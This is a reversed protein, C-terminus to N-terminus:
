KIEADDFYYNGALAASRRLTMRLHTAGAPATINGSQLQAYASGTATVNIASGVPTAGQYWQLRMQGRSLGDTSWTSAWVSAQYIQGPTVGVQQYVEAYGGFSRLKLHYAGSHGGSDQQANEAPYNTWSSTTEFGPNSLLSTSAIAADDFYYNGALAASRRLTMRLHTAGAPATINGSQLQAYASGTATVNVTSGVPTAGQYWQLRMQGRSLGDMSWTSAWVSAQYIQGPTVGVQQYVEAYGGFSRLKLHYAGSHGGPDQQANEAPYNTWSSTTEFGPNSLVNQGSGPPSTAAFEDAGIDPNDGREDQFFDRPIATLEQAADIVPSSATEIRLWEASPVPGTGLVLDPDLLVDTGSNYFGSPVTGSWWNNNSFTFGATTGSAATGAVQYVINNRFTNGSRTGNSLLEVGEYASGTAGTRTSVFTNHAITSNNYSSGSIGGWVGFGQGTNYVFNNVILQNSGYEAVVQENNAVIGPSPRLPNTYRWYAQNDTSYVINRQVTSFRSNDLYIAIAYSDWVVNDEITTRNSRLDGIAEGSSRYVENKRFLTDNSDIAGLSYGWPDECDHEPPSNCWSNEGVESNQVTVFNSSHVEIGTGWNRTATVNDVLVHDAVIQLGRGASGTISLDRIEIDNATVGVLRDYMGGGPFTNDDGDIITQNEVGSIVTGEVNFTVREKYTGALIVLTDGTTELAENGQQITAFPATPSRGDNNPNGLPPPAVYYTDAMAPVAVAALWLAAATVAFRNVHSSDRPGAPLRAPLRFRHFHM